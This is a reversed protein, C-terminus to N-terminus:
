YHVNTQACWQGWIIDRVITALCFIPCNNCVDYPAWNNAPYQEDFAQAFNFRVEQPLAQVANQEDSDIVAGPQGYTADIGRGRGKGRGPGVGQRPHQDTIGLCAQSVQSVCVNVNM